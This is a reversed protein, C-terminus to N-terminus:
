ARVNEDDVGQPYSPPNPAGPILADLLEAQIEEPGVAHATFAEGSSELRWAGGAPGTTALMFLERAMGDARHGARVAYWRAEDDGALDRLQAPLAPGGTAHASLLVELDAASLEISADPGRGADAVPFLEGIRAVVRSLPLARWRVVSGDLAWEVASESDLALVAREPDRGGRRWTLIEMTARPALMASPVPDGESRPAVLDELTDLEWQPPAAEGLASELRRSVLTDFEDVPSFPPVLPPALLREVAGALSPITAPELELLVDRGEEDCTPPLFVVREPGEGLVALRKRRARGAAMDGIEIADVKLHAPTTLYPYKDLWGARARVKSGEALLPGEIELARFLDAADTGGVAAAAEGRDLRTERTEFLGAMRLGVIAELFTQGVLVDADESDIASVGALSCVLRAFAAHDCPEAITCGESGADFRVVHEGDNLFGLVTADGAAALRLLLLQRPAVLVRLACVLTPELPAPDFETNSAVPDCGILGALPSAPEVSLDLRKCLVALETGTLELPWTVGDSLDGREVM